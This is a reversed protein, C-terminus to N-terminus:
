QYTDILSKIIFKGEFNDVPIESSEVYVTKSDGPILHFFNDSFQAYSDKLGLEVYAAFKESSVVIKFKDQEKTVKYEIEPNELPWYKPPVFTIINSSLTQDGELLKLSVFVKTRNRYSEKRYTSLEPNESVIDSFDLTDIIKSSNPQLKIEKSGKKIIEGDFSHLTWEYKLSKESVLDNSGYVIVEGEKAVGSILVPNFFHKAIYQLAKWRGFYDISSWSIVPWNDNLQWYLAGTTYPFNQRMAEVGMKMGEAQLVQTVSVWNELGSPVRFMDATYQIIRVNGQNQNPKRGVLNHHDLIVSPFYRDEPATFANITQIHPLSHFGFEAVFRYKGMNSYESFRYRGGWVDYTHANGSTQNSVTTKQERDAPNHPSSPWYPRTPDYLKTVQPITEYFIKDYEEWTVAPNLAIWNQGGSMNHESENNGCWLAISPHHRRRLVVNKIEERVNELYPKTALYPGSAFMFDHWILLGNEDCFEYFVDPEYLGGGWLRIMNMNADICSQLMHKYKDETLKGTMADAPIWNAGKSFILKGNVKIGFTEGAEDKEQAIEITRLGIRIHRTHIPIEGNRLVANVIYLPQDGMGNPWWLKPNGIRLTDNAIGSNLLTKTSYILSDEYRVEFEISYNGDKYTEAEAEVFLLAEDSNHLDQIVGLMNIRGTDFATLRISKWIGCSLLRIGWDWGFDSAEKRSYYLLGKLADNTLAKGSRWTVRPDADAQAKNWEIVSHFVVHITNVGAHLYPKIDFEHEIFMNQTSAIKENNIYIDAILDLGRCDLLVKDKQLFDEEVTFSRKYEWEKTEVWQADFENDRYYPDELKGVRILDEHITGPVIADMWEEDDLAKFKWDGNLDIFNLVESGDNIMSFAKTGSVESTKQDNKVNNRENCSTFNMVFSISFLILAITNLKLYKMIYYPKIVKKFDM